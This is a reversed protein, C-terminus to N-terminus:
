HALPDMSRFAIRLQDDTLEGLQPLVPSSADFGHIEASHISMWQVLGHMIRLNAKGHSSSDGINADIIGNLALRPEPAFAVESLKARFELEESSLVNFPGRQDIAHRGEHAFISSEQLAHDYESLFAIQLQRGTLGRAKLRDLIKQIGQQNMRKLLGGLYATSNKAATQRDIELAKRIEEEAKARAAETAVSLWANLAGGSYAQRIQVITGSSGWGGHQGGNEWAWSQFGNSVMSDLVMFHLKAQRGYQKIVREENVICHGMHLDYYGATSGLNVLAGFRQEMEVRFRDPSIEPPKASSFALQPWLKEATEKMIADLAKANGKGLLTHRYYENVRASLEDCARAYAILERVRPNQQLQVAFSPRPDLAVLAAERFLRSDGLACILALRAEADGPERWVQLLRSLSEGAAAIAGPAPSGGDTRFYTRWATLAAPGDGVLLSAQLYLRSTIEWGPQAEVLENLSTFASSIEKKQAAGGALREEVTEDVVSQAAKAQARIKELPQTAAALASDAAKRADAYNRRSLEMDAEDLWADAAVDKVTIAKQFHAHAKEYDKEYRWYMRGLLREAVATDHGPPQIGIVRELLQKQLAINHSSNAQAAERLLVGTDKGTAAVQAAANM